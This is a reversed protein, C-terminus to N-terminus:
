WKYFRCKRMTMFEELQEMTPLGENDGRHMVQIAGIANGRLVSKEISIDDLIGSLVGAAFGDGAGVTDIVHEVRFGTVTSERGNESVFAGKPGQKIIITKQERGCIEEIIKAIDKTGYLVECENIGPLVIDAQEILERITAVMTERNEWLVPRLNPDFSVLIGKEQAKKMLYM